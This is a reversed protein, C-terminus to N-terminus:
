MVGYADDVFLNWDNFQRPIVAEYTGAAAVNYFSNVRQVQNTRPNVATIRPNHKECDATTTVYVYGSGGNVLAKTPCVGRNFLVDHLTINAFPTTSKNSLYMMTNKFQTLQAAYDSLPGAILWDIMLLNGDGATSGVIFNFPHNGQISLLVSLLKHRASHTVDESADKIVGTLDLQAFLQNVTTAPVLTGESVFYSKAQSLAVNHDVDATLLFEQLTMEKEKNTRLM